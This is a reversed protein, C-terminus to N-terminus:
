TIAATAVIPSTGFAKSEETYLALMYRTPKKEYADEPLLQVFLSRVFLAAIFRFCM